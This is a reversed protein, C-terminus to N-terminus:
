TGGSVSYSVEQNSPLSSDPTTSSRDNTVSKGGRESLSSRSNRRHITAFVHWATLKKTLKYFIKKVGMSMNDSIPHKLLMNAKIESRGMWLVMRCTNMKDLINVCPLTATEFEGNVHVHLINEFDSKLYCLLTRNQQLTMIHGQGELYRGLNGHSVDDWYPSWKQSINDFDSKLYCLLSGFVIKSCPRATVKVKLTPSWINRAVRRRLM